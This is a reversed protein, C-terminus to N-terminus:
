VVKLTGADNWIEGATLGASSTPLRTFKATTGLVQGSTQTILIYRELQAILLRMYEADYDKPPSPLKRPIQPRRTTM